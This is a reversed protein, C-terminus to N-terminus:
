EDPQSLARKARLYIFVAVMVLAITALVLIVLWVIWMPLFHTQYANYGLIDLMAFFIILQPLAIINGMFSVVRGAKVGSKAWGWIADLKAVGWAIGAALLVLLFQPLLLWLMAAVRGIFSTPTGDPDFRVALQAPLLHYFFAFIAVSLLFVIVPAIIYSWRFSLRDV